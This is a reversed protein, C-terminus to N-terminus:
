YEGKYIYNYEPIVTFFLPKVAKILEREVTPKVEELYDVYANLKNKSIKSANQESVFEALNDLPKEIKSNDNLANINIAHERETIDDDNLEYIKEFMYYQKLLLAPLTECIKYKFDVLFQEITNYAINSNQYHLYLRELIKSGYFALTKDRTGFDHSYQLLKEFLDFCYGYSSSAFFYKKNDSSAFNFDLTNFILHNENIDDSLYIEVIPNVYRDDIKYIFIDKLQINYNLNLM